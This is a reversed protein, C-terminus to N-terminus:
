ATNGLRKKIELIALDLIERQPDNLFDARLKPYTKRKRIFQTIALGIMLYSHLDVSKQLDKVVSMVSDIADSEKNFLYDSPDEGIQQTDPRFMYTFNFAEQMDGFETDKSKGNEIHENLSGIQDAAIIKPGYMAELVKFGLMGAFSTDIRFDLREYQSMFKVTAELAASDVLDPPLFIKGTTKKLILSRAYPLIESFMRQYTVVDRDRLYIEQLEALAIETKPKPKAPKM